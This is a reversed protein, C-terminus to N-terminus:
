FSPSSMIKSLVSGCSDELPDFHMIDLAVYRIASNFPGLFQTAETLFLAIRLVEVFILCIYFIDKVFFIICLFLVTDIVYLFGTARFSCHSVGM